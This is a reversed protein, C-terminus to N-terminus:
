GDDTILKLEVGNQIDSDALTLINGYKSYTYEYWRGISNQYPLVNGAHDYEIKFWRYNNIKYTLVQNNDNCVVGFPITDIETQTLKTLM